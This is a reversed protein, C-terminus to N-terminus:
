YNCKALFIIFDIALGISVSWNYGGKKGIFNAVKECLVRKLQAISEDSPGNMFIDLSLDHASANIDHTSNLNLNAGSKRLYIQYQTKFVDSKAIASMQLLISRHAPLFKFVQQRKYSDEIQITLNRVYHPWSCTGNVYAEIDDVHCQNMEQLTTPSDYGSAKMIMKVLTPVEAHLCSEM